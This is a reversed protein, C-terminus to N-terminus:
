LFSGHVAAAVVVQTVPVVALLFVVVAAAVVTAQRVIAVALRVIVQNATVRSLSATVGAKAKILHSSIAPSVTVGAGMAIGVPEPLHRIVVAAARAHALTTIAAPGQIATTPLLLVPRMAQAVMAARVMIMITHVVPAVMAPVPMIAMAVEARHVPQDQIQVAAGMPITPEHRTTLHLILDVPLVIM